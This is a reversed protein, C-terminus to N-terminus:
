ADEDTRGEEGGLHAPKIVAERGYNAGTSFYAPYAYRYIHLVMEIVGNGVVRRPSGYIIM